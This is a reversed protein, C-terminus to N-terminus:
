RSMRPGFIDILKMAYYNMNMPAADIASGSMTTKVDSSYHHIVDPRSTATIVARQFDEVTPKRCASSNGSIESAPSLPYFSHICQHPLM